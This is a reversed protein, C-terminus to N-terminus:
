FLFLDEAGPHGTGRSWQEDMALEDKQLFAVLARLAHLVPADIKRAQAEDFAAKAEDPQEACINSGMLNAYTQATPLLRVAERAEDASRDHQGLFQLSTSFNIHATPDQPFTQVWQRYVPASKELEGTTVDYYLSETRLRNQETMRTRLDYGKREAAAALAFENAGHYDSGLAAYGLAFNPDLEVARQYYTLAGRFDAMVHHRYGEMLLQLAELSPSTAEELPKNFKAISAAPEGLKGRMRAASVGWFHVVENRSGADERVRTITAGTQCSIAKLEIRFKNGADAISSAIVM